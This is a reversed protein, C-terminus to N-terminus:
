PFNKNADKHCQGMDDGAITACHSFDNRAKNHAKREAPTLRVGNEVMDDYHPGGLMAYRSSCIEMDISYNKQCQDTANQYGEENIRRIPGVAPPATPGPIIELPPVAASPEGSCMWSTLFFTCWDFPIDPEPAPRSEPEIAPFPPLIIGTEPDVRNPNPATIHCIGGGSPLAVCTTTGSSENPTPSPPWPFLPVPLAPVNDVGAYGPNEPFQERYGGWDEGGTPTDGWDDGWNGDLDGSGDGWNGGNDGEWPEDPWWDSIGGGGGSGNSGGSGDCWGDGCFSLGGTNDILMPRTYHDEIQRAKAVKTAVTQAQKLAYAFKTMDQLREERARTKVVKPDVHITLMTGAGPYHEVTIRGGKIVPSKIEHCVNKADIKLSTMYCLSYRKNSVVLTSIPAISPDLLPAQIVAIPKGASKPLPRKICEGTKTCAEIHSGRRWVLQHESPPTIPGSRAPNHTGPKLITPNDLQFSRPKSKDSEDQAMSTGAAAFSVALFALTIRKM